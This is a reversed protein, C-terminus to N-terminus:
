GTIAEQYLQVYKQAISEWAFKTKVRERAKTGLDSRLEPSELLKVIAARIEQVSKPKVLLATDGVVEACGTGNTTVIAMGASMAELLVTPFNEAESPFVFISSTEYLEKLQRSDQELWGLFSLNSSVGAAQELLRDKYPGDGVINIKYDMDLGKIAQLFHQIGKFRFFRSVVLIKKEKKRLRYSNYNFGNPIVKLNETQMNQEILSKLSSSPAVVYEAAHVIREWFPKLLRHELRFREPNHGPVDSGHCTIVFPLKRFKRLIYSILGTPFIFHTHNVEYKNNRILKMTIPIAALVFTLMEHTKCIEKRRRLCRVRHIRMGESFDNRPIGKFGMTVVDVTHGLKALEKSLNYCVLGGGGGLPPLEYSLILIRM